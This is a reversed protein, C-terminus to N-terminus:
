EKISVYSVFANLTIIEKSCGYEGNLESLISQFEARIRQDGGDRAKCETVNM